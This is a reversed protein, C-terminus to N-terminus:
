DKKELLPLETIVFALLSSTRALQGTPHKVQNKEQLLICQYHGPGSSARSRTSADCSESVVEALFNCQWKRYCSVNGMSM